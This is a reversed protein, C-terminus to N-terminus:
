AISRTRTSQRRCILRLRMNAPLRWHHHSGLPQRCQAAAERQATASCANSRRALPKGSKAIIFPEGKAAAEVLCSLHTTAEHINVTRM